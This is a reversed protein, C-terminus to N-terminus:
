EAAHCRDDPEVDVTQADVALGVAFFQSRGLQIHNQPFKFVSHLYQTLLHSNNRILVITGLRVVHIPRRIHDHLARWSTRSVIQDGVTTNLDFISAFLYPTNTNNIKEYIVSQVM